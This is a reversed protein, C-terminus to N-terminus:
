KGQGVHRREHKEDRYYISKDLYMLKEATTIMDDTTFDDRKHFYGVSCSYNTKEMTARFKITIDRVELEDSNTALVIFEDGSIRYAYMKNNISSLIADAITQIAKDGETHGKTDNVEKLGNMDFYVVGTISKKMKRIDNKLTARNYLGTLSDLQSREIYLFLYYFLTSVAITNNLINMENDTDIFTEICTGIILAAVCGLIVFGHSLHKLRLITFALYAIVILYFASVIHASYRLPGGNFYVIGDSGLTFYVVEKGVVPVFALLYVITNLIVPILSLPFFKTRTKQKTLLTFLFLIVPRTIYSTVSCITTGTVSGQLKFFDELSTSFALLFIFVNILITYFSVRANERYRQIAIGSLIACVCLLAFNNAILIKFIEMRYSKVM